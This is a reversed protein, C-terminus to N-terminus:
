SRGGLLFLFKLYLIKLTEVLPFVGLLLIPYMYREENMVQGFILYAFYLLLGTSLHRFHSKSHGASVLVAVYMLLLLGVAGVRLFEVLANGRLQNHISKLHIQSKSILHGASKIPTYIWRNSAPLNYRLRNAKLIFDQEEQLLITLPQHAMRGKVKKSLSEFERLLRDLAVHHEKSLYIENEEMLDKLGYNSVDKYKGEWCLTTLYHFNEPKHEIYRFVDTLAEHPPRFMSQNAEHYIPHPNWFRGTHNAKYFEWTGISLLPIICAILIKRLSMTKLQRMWQVFMPVFVILLVPRLFYLICLGLFISFPSKNEKFLYLTGILALPLASESLQFDVFGYFMPCVSFLVASIKAAKIGVRLGLRHVLITAVGHQITCISFWVFPAIDSFLSHIPGLLFGLLPPRQVLSSPGSYIFDEPSFIYQYFSLYSLDDSTTRFWESGFFVDLSKVILVSAIALVFYFSEQKRFPLKMLALNFMRHVISEM